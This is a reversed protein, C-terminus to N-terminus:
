GLNPKKQIKIMCDTGKMKVIDRLLCVENYNLLFLYVAIQDQIADTLYVLFM